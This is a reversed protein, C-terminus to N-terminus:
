IANTLKIAFQFFSQGTIAALTDFTVQVGPGEQRVENQVQVMIVATPVEGLVAEAWQVGSGAEIPDGGRQKVAAFMARDLLETRPDNLMEVDMILHADTPSLIPYLDFVDSVLVEVPGSPQMRKEKRSVKLDMTKRKYIPAHILCAGM